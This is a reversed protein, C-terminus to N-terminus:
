AIRWALVGWLTAVKEEGKFVILFSEDNRDYELELATGTVEMVEFSGGARFWVIYDYTTILIQTM